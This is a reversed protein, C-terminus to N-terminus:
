VIANQSNCALRNPVVAQSMWHESSQIHDKRVYKVVNKQFDDFDFGGENRIVFGEMGEDVKIMLSRWPIFDWSGTWLTRVPTIGLLNFLEVTTEWSYCWNIRRDWASFGLFYSELDDYAISHKAYMNEGCIRIEPPIDHKIQGHFAKIWDRSPHHRSDLSRAHLHDHYLTTNEGDMKETIVLQLAKELVSTDEARRDDNQLGPSENLHYTRPYKVYDMRRSEVTRSFLVVSIKSFNCTIAM